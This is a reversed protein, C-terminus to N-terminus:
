RDTQRDIQLNSFSAIRRSKRLKQVLAAIRCSKELKQVQCRWFRLFQALSEWNKLNVVDFVFRNQSVGKLFPFNLASSVAEHGHSKRNKWEMHRFHQAQWSFTLGVRLIMKAFRFIQFHLGILFAIGQGGLMESSSTEQVVDAMRFADKCIRKLHGMSELAKPVAVFGESEAWKQCAIGQAQWACRCRFRWFHDTGTLKKCKQSPCTSRAVVAHCKKSMEVELRTGFKDTKESKVEFNAERWLPTCKKSM